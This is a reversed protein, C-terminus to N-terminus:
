FKFNFKSVETKYINLHEKNRTCLFEPVLSLYFYPIQNLSKHITYTLFANHHELFAYLKEMEKQNKDIELDKSSLHRTNDSRAYYKCGKALKM